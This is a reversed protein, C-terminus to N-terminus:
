GNPTSREALRQEVKRAIQGALRLFRQKAAEDDGRIVTCIVPVTTNGNKVNYTVTRTTKM